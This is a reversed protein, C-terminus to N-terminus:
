QQVRGEAQLQKFRAIDDKFRRLTDARETELTKRTNRADALESRVGAIEQRLDAPVDRKAAVLKAERAQLGALHKELRQQHERVLRLQAELASVRDDRLREIDHVSNFTRLLMNDRRQQEARGAALKELRKAEAEAAARQAPTLPPPVRKVVDGSSNLVEYGRDVAQPPLLNSYHVQGQADRWRFTSSEAASAAATALLLCLTASGLLVRSRM